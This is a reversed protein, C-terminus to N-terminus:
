YDEYSDKISEALPTAASELGMQSDNATNETKAAMGIAAGPVEEVSLNSGQVFTITKATM